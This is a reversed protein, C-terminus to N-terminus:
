LRVNIPGINYPEEKAPNDAIPHWRHETEHIARTLMRAIVYADGIASSQWSTVAQNGIQRLFIRNAVEDYVQAWFKKEELSPFRAELDFDIGPWAEEEFQRLSKVWAREQDSRAAEAAVARAFVLLAGLRVNSVWLSQDKLSIESSVPM